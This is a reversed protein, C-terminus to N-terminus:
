IRLLEGFADVSQLSELMPDKAMEERFSPDLELAERVHVLARDLESLRAAARAAGYRAAADSPDLVAAREFTRLAETFRRIETLAVGLNVLITPDDPRREAAQEFDKLAREADAASLYLMGRNNLADPDDPSLEIARNFDSLAGELDGLRVRANARNYYADVMGAAAAIARSYRHEALEFAEIEYFANGEDIFARAAGEDAVLDPEAGADAYTDSTPEPEPREDEPSVVPSLETVPDSLDDTIALSADSEPPLWGEEETSTKEEVDTILDVVPEVDAPMDSIDDTVVALPRELEEDPASDEETFQAWLGAIGQEISQSDSDWGDFDPEADLDSIGEKALHPDSFSVPIETEPEASPVVRGFPRAPTLPPQPLSESRTSIPQDLASEDEPLGPEPEWTDDLAFPDVEPQPRPTLGIPPEVEDISLTNQLEVTSDDQHPAPEAEVSDTEATPPAAIPEPHDDSELSTAPAPESVRDSPRDFFTTPDTPASGSPMPLGLESGPGERSEPDWEESFSSPKWTRRLRLDPGPDAAEAAPQDAAPQEVATQEAAFDDQDESVIEQPTEEAASEALEDGRSGLDEGRIANIPDELLDGMPSEPADAEQGTLDDLETSAASTSDESEETILPVDAADAPLDEFADTSEAKSGVAAWIGASEQTSTEGLSLHQGAPPPSGAEDQEAPSWFDDSSEPETSSEERTTLGLVPARAGFVKSLAEEPPEPEANTPPSPWDAVVPEDAQKTPGDWPDDELM